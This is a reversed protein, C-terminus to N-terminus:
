RMGVAWVAMVRTFMDRRFALQLVRVDNLKGPGGGRDEESPRSAVSPDYMFIITRARRDTIRAREM